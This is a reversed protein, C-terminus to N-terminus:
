NKDLVFRVQLVARQAVAIGNRKIPQFRWRRVSEVAAKDFVQPPNADRVVLDQTTGDPAITFEVQVWGEKGARQADRPYVPAVERVRPLEAAQVINKMFNRQDQVIALQQQLPAIAPLGPMLKDAGKIYISADDVNNAALATRARDLFLAALRRQEAIVEDSDPFRERLMLIADYANANQPELLAGRERLRVVANLLDTLSRSTPAPARVQAVQQKPPTDIPEDSPPPNAGSDVPEDETQALEADAPEPARTEPRPPTAARRAKEKAIARSAADQM